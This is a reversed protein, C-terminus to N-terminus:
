IAFALSLRSGEGGPPTNDQLYSVVPGLIQVRFIEQQEAPLSNMLETLALTGQMELARQNTLMGGVALSLWTVPHSLGAEILKQSVLLAARFRHALLFKYAAYIVLVQDVSTISSILKEDDGATDLEFLLKVLDDESTPDSASAAVPQSAWRVYEPPYIDRNNLIIQRFFREHNPRSSTEYLGGDKAFYHFLQRQVAVGFYGRSGGAVWMNWDDAGKVNTVYGGTEEWMERRYVACCPLLNMVIERGMDFPVAASHGERNGFVHMGSYAISATPTRQLARVCEEIYTPEIWDDSDLYMLLSGRSMAFAENHPIAPNGANESRYIVTCRDEYGKLVERSNDTSADDVVILEIHQWTQALLSDLCRALYPGYNYNAVAVSVVPLASIPARGTLRAIVNRMPAHQLRKIAFGPYYRLRDKDLPDGRDDNIYPVFESPGMEHLYAPDIGDCVKVASCQRCQPSFVKSLRESRGRGM